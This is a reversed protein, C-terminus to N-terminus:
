RVYESERALYGTEQEEILDLTANVQRQRAEWVEYVARPVTVPVGRKILYTRGNVIITVDSRSRSDDSRPITFTVKEPLAAEASAEKVKTAENAM